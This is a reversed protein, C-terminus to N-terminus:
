SAARTPQGLPIAKVEHFLPGDTDVRLRPRAEQPPATYVRINQERFFRNREGTKELAELHLHIAEMLQDRAQELKPAYASTGLENCVGVWVRGEKHFSLTLIAYGQM